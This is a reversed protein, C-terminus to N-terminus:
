WARSKEALLELVAGFTGPNLRCDPNVFALHEGRAIAAGVNCGPAFGLNKGPEVIRIRFDANAWEELRERVEDDAGNLVVILELLEPQALVSNMGAWLVPGTHYVVTVASVCRVRERTYPM